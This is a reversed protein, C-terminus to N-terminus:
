LVTLLYIKFKSKVAIIGKIKKVIAEEMALRSFDSFSPFNNTMPTNKLVTTIEATNIITPTSSKRNM